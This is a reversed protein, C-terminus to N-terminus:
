AGAHAAEMAPINRMSDHRAPPTMRHKPVLAALLGATAVVEGAVIARGKLQWFDGRFRDRTVDLELVDGPYLPRLVRAQEINLLAPVQTELDVGVTRAALVAGAQAMAEVILVGPFVPQGPFHGAFWPDEARLQKVAVIRTPPELMRVSDLLLMPPRHPLVRVIDDLTLEM